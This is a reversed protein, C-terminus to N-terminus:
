LWDAWSWTSKEGPLRCADIEKQTVNHWTELPIWGIYARDGFGGIWYVDDVVLRVWRSTHIRNGPLWAVADPHNKVFCTALGAKSADSDDIDELHGVLSFRPLSAASHWRGDQPHWRLSLTINSGAAVNKFSTAIDIALITPNGSKPECDAYYDMLGIPVGGLGHPRQETSHIDHHNASADSPFVTSLTGINELRLVRRAQVASEHVSPISFGSTSESSPNSFIHQSGPLLSALSLGVLGFGTLVVDTLHM